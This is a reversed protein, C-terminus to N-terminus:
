SIRGINYEKDIIGNKPDGVLCPAVPIIRGPLRRYHGRRWHLVPSSHTGISPKRIETQPNIGVTKFEYLPPKGSRARAQQLKTPVIVQKQIFTSSALAVCCFITVTADGVITYDTNYDRDKLRYVLADPSTSLVFPSESAGIWRDEKVRHHLAFVSILSEQNLDIDRLEFGTDRPAVHRCLLVHRDYKDDEEEAEYEFIVEDFPLRLLGRKLLDFGFDLFADNEYFSIFRFKHARNIGARGWDLRALIAAVSDESFRVKPSPALEWTKSLFPTIEQTM